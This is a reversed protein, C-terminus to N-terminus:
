LDLWDHDAAKIGTNRAASVGSQPQKILLVDPYHEYLMQATGDTSGDDVVVLFFDDGLEEKLEKFLISAAENDEYVPMLIILKSNDIEM